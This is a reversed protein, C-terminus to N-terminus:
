FTLTAGVVPYIETLVHLKDVEGQLKLSGLVMELGLSLNGNVAFLWSKSVNLSYTKFKRRGIATESDDIANIFYIDVNDIIPVDTNVGLILDMDVQDERTPVVTSFGTVLKYDQYIPIYFRGSPSNSGDFRVVSDVEFDFAFTAASLVSLLLLSLRRM